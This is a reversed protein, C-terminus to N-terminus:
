TNGGVDTAFIDRLLHSSGDLDASLTMLLHKQPFGAKSQMWARTCYLHYKPLEILGSVSEFHQQFGEQAASRKECLPKPPATKNTTIPKVVREEMCNKAIKKRRWSPLRIEKRKKGSSCPQLIDALSETVDDEHTSTVDLQTSDFVDAKKTGMAKAISNLYLKGLEPNSCFDEEEPLSDEATDQKSDSFRRTAKTKCSNPDMKEQRRKKFVLNGLPTGTAQMHFKRGSGDSQTVFMSSHLLIMKMVDRGVRELLRQWQKSTLLDAPASTSSVTKELTDVNNGRNLVNKTSTYRIGSQVKRYGFCIVDANRASSKGLKFKASIVHHVLKEQSLEDETRSPNQFWALLDPANEDFAIYTEDLLDKGQEILADDWSSPSSSSFGHPHFEDTTGNENESCGRAATSTLDKYQLLLELATRLTQIHPYVKALVRPVPKKWPDCACGGGRREKKKKEGRKM